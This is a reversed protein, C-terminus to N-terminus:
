LDFISIKFIVDKMIIYTRYYDVIEAISNNEIEIENYKLYLFHHIDQTEELFLSIKENYIDNKCYKKISLLKNFVCLIESDFVDLLLKFQDKKDILELNIFAIKNGIDKYKENNDNLEKYLTKSLNAIEETRKQDTWSNFTYLLAITAFMTASWGLLSSATNKDDVYIQIIAYLAISVTVLSFYIIILTTHLEFPKNLREMFKGLM